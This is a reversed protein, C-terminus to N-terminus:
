RHNELQMLDLLDKARRRRHDSTDPDAGYREMLDHIADGGVIEINGEQETSQAAGPEAERSEIDTLKEHMTYQTESALTPVFRVLRAIDSKTM